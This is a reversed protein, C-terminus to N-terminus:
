VSIDHKTPVTENYYENDINKDYLVDNAPKNVDASDNTNSYQATDISNNTQKNPHTIAYFMESITMDVAGLNYIVLGVIVVFFSIYFVFNLQQGFLYVAFIISWFDATLMSLNFFMASSYRLLTPVIMYFVFLCLDFAVLYGVVTSQNWPVASLAGTKGDLYTLQIGSIVTGWVGLMAWFEVMNYEKVIYEQALNSTAYCITGLLVLGDGWAKNTAYANGPDVFDSNYLDSIVMLALGVLCIFAGVIHRTTYKRKFLIYSFVLVLPITFADLLQASTINTYQYALTLCYNGEVDALALPAYMYWSVNTLGWLNKWSAPHRPTYTPDHKKKYSQYCLLPFFLALMGYLAFSQSTPINVPYADSVLLQNFVGTGVNLCALIQGFLILLWFTYNRKGTKDGLITMETEGLHTQGSYIGEFLAHSFKSAISNSQATVGPQHIDISHMLETARPNTSQTTDILAARGTVIPAQGHGTHQNDSYDSTLKKDQLSSM